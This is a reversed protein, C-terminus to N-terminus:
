EWFVLRCELLPGLDVRKEDVEPPKGVLNVLGTGLRLDGFSVPRIAVGGRLAAFKSRVEFGWLVRASDGLFTHSYKEFGVIRGAAFGRRPPFTRSSLYVCTFGASYVLFNGIWM